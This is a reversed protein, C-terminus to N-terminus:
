ILNGKEKKKEILLNRRWVIQRQHFSKLRNFGLSSEREQIFCCRCVYFHTREKTQSNIVLRVNSTNNSPGKKEGKGISSTLGDSDSFRRKRASRREKTYKYTYPILWFKRLISNHYLFGLETKKEKERWWVVPFLAGTASSTASLLFSAPTWNSNKPPRDVSFPTAWLVSSFSLSLSLFLCLLKKINCANKTKLRLDWQRTFKVNYESGM